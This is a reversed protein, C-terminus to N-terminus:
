QYEENTNHFPFGFDPERKGLDWKSLDSFPCELVIPTDIGVKMRSTAEHVAIALAITYDVPRFIPRKSKDKIIRYGRSEAKAVCNVVHDRAENDKFLMLNEYKLASYLAQTADIMNAQSQIYEHVPFGRNRLRISTQYFHAPDHGIWVINYEKNQEILYEEVSKEMDLTEGGRPTWIKHFLEIVKGKKSDYALGVAATCDHKPAADIGVIVPYSHYPHDIWGDAPRDFKV